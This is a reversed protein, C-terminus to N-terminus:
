RVGPGRDGEGSLEVRRGEQVPRGPDLHSRRERRHSTPRAPCRAPPDARESPRDPGAVLHPFFSLYLFADVWGAPETTGRYVDIVYSVAMFTFFSVGVPLVVQILPISANLGVSTMANSLNVAFFGYYKFYLLPAFVAAVAVVMAARKTKPDRLRHVGLAGLQALLSVGALLLVFRPDWWSYFVYSAGIMFPKWLRPRPNLLWHGLFVLAFFIAFDTTPFLM